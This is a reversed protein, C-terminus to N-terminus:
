DPPILALSRPSIPATFFVICRRFCSAVPPLLEACVGIL